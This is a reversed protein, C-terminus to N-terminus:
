LTPKSPPIPSAHPHLILSFVEGEKCADKNSFNM